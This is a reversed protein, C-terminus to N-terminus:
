LGYVAQIRPSAVGRFSSITYTNILYSTVIYNSFNLIGQSTLFNTAFWTVDNYQWLSMDYQECLSKSQNMTRLEKYFWVYSSTETSYGTVEDQILTDFYEPFETVM